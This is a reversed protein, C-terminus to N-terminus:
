TVYAVRQLYMIFIYIETILQTHYQTLMSQYYLILSGTFIHQVKNEQSKKRHTEM